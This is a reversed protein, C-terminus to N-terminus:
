PNTVDLNFQGNTSVGAGSTTVQFNFSGATTPTGSLLGQAGNLSLGAPIGAAAAWGVGVPIPSPVAEPIKLAILSSPDFAANTVLGPYDRLTVAVTHPRRPIVANYPLGVQAAPLNGPSLELLYVTKGGHVAQADYGPRNLAADQLQGNIRAIVHYNFDWGTAGGSPHYANDLANVNTLNTYSGGRCIWVNRGLSEFGGFFMVPNANFGVSQALTVLLNGFDTCIGVGDNFVTLPDPNIADAPDYNIVGRMGSRIAAPVDAAGNAFGTAKDIAYNTVGGITPAAELWYLRHGGSRGLDYWTAGDFTIQWALVNTSCRVGDFGSLGRLQLQEVSILSNTVPVCDKRGVEQNNELVRVTADTNGALETAAGLGIQAHTDPNSNKTYAAAHDM